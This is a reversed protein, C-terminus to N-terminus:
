RRLLEPLEAVNVAIRRAEDRSPILRRRVSTIKLYGDNIFVATM